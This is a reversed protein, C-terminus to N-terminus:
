PIRNSWEILEHDPTFVVHDRPPTVFLERRQTDVGRRGPRHDLLFTGLNDLELEGSALIEEAWVDGITELIQSVTQRSIGARDSIVAALEDYSMRSRSGATRYAWLVPARFRSM